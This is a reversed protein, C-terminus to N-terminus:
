ENVCEVANDGNQTLAPSVYPIGLNLGRLIFLIGIVIAFYPLARRVKNRMNLSIFGPALAVVLMAPLTGLGFAAMYLAGGVIEYSSTAGVVAFYVLGCPLLGNLLGIVWLSSHSKNKLRKGLTNKLASLLSSVKPTINFIKEFSYPLLAFLIILVGLGISFYQQYGFFAIERGLFGFFLGIIAYTFVRGINYSIVGSIKSLSSNHNLPLALAIPGCMGVCHLSGFFGIMFATVFDIM